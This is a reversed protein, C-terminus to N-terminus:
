EEKKGCEECDCTEVSKLAEICQKVTALRFEHSGEWQWGKKLYVKYGCVTAGGHNTFSAVRDAYNLLVARLSVPLYGNIEIDHKAAGRRTEADDLQQALKRNRKTRDHEEVAIALALIAENVEIQRRERASIWEVGRDAARIARREHPRNKWRRNYQGFPKNKQLDRVHAYEHIATKFFCQYSVVYDYAEHYDTRPWLEIWGVRTSVPRKTKPNILMRQRHAQGRPHWSGRRVITVVPGKVHAAVAAQQLLRLLADDPLCSQNILKVRM